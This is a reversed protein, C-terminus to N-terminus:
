WDEAPDLSSMTRLREAWRALEERRCQEELEEQLGEALDQVSRETMRRFQGKFIWSFYRQGAIPATWRTFCAAATTTCIL